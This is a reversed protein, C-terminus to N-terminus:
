GNFPTMRCHKELKWQMTLPPCHCHTSWIAPQSNQSWNWSVMESACISHQAFNWGLKSRTSHNWLATFHICCNNHERHLHCCTKWCQFTKHAITGPCMRHIWMVATFDPDGFIGCSDRHEELHLCHLCAQTQMRKWLNQEMENHHVSTDTDLQFKIGCVWHITCKISWNGGVIGLSTKWSNQFSQSNIPQSEDIECAFRSCQQQQVRHDWWWVSLTTTLIKVPQIRFDLWCVMGLLCKRMLDFANHKIKWRAEWRTRKQKRHNMKMRGELSADKCNQEIKPKPKTKWVTPWTGTWTCNTKAAMVCCMLHTEPFASLKAKSHQALATSLANKVIEGVTKEIHDCKVFKKSMKVLDKGFFDKPQKKAAESGNPEFNGQLHLSNMVIKKWWVWQEQERPSAPSNEFQGSIVCFNKSFGGLWASHLKAWHNKPCQHNDWLFWWWFNFEQQCWTTLAFTSKKRVSQGWCVSLACTWASACWGTLWPSIRKIIKEHHCPFKLSGQWMLHFLDFVVILQSPLIDFGRQWQNAETQQKKQTPWWCLKFILNPHEENCQWSQLADCSKAGEEMRQWHGNMKLLTKTAVASKMWKWLPWPAM